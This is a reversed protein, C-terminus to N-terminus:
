SLGAKQEARMREVLADQLRLRLKTIGPQGAEKQALAYLHEHRERAEEAIELKTKRRRAM